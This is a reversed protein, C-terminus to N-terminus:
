GEWRGALWLALVKKYIARNPGQGIEWRAWLDRTVGIQEAAAAQSLGRRVRTAVLRGALGRRRKGISGLPKGRRRTASAM